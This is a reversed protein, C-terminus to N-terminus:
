TMKDYIIEGVKKICVFPPAFIPKKLRVLKTKFGSQILFRKPKLGLFRYLGIQVPNFDSQIFSTGWSLKM